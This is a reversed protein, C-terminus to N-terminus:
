KSSFVIIEDKVDALLNCHKESTPPSPYGLPIGGISSLVLYTM